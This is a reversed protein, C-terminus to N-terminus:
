IQVLSTSRSQEVPFSLINVKTPAQDQSRAVQDQEGQDHSSVAFVGRKQRQDTINTYKYCVSIKTM